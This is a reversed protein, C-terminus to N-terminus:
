QKNAALRCNDKLKVQPFTKVVTQVSLINYVHVYIQAHKLSFKHKIILCKLVACTCTSHFGFLIQNKKKEVPQHLCLELFDHM